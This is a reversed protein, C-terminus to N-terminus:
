GAHMGLRSCKALTPSQAVQVAGMVAAASIARRVLLPVRAVIWPPPPASTIQAASYQKTCSAAAKATVAWASCATASTDARSASRSDSSNSLSACSCATCCTLRCVRPAGPWFATLMGLVTSSAQQKPFPWGQVSQCTCRRPRRGGQGCLCLSSGLLCCRLRLLRCSAHACGQRLTLSLQGHVTVLQRSRHPAMCVCLM